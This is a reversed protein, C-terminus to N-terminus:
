NQTDRAAPAMHCGYAAGVALSLNLGAQLDPLRLDVLEGMAEGIGRLGLEFPTPSGPTLWAPLKIGELLRKFENVPGAGM